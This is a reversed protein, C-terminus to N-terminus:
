KEFIVCYYWTPYLLLFDDIFNSGVGQKERTVYQAAYNNIHLVMWAAIFFFISSWSQKHTKIPKLVEEEKSHCGGCTGKNTLQCSLLPCVPPLPTCTHALSRRPQLCLDWGKAYSGGRPLTHRGRDRKEEQRQQGLCGHSSRLHHLDCYSVLLMSLLM